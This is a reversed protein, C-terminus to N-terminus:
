VNYLVWSEVVTGAPSLTDIRAEKAAYTSKYGCM